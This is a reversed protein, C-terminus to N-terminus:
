PWFWKAGEHVARLSHLDRRGEKTGKRKGLSWKEVMEYGRKARNREKAAAVQSACLLVNHQPNSQLKPNVVLNVDVRTYLKGRGRERSSIM